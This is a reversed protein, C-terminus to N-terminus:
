STRTAIIMFWPNKSYSTGASSSRFEAKVTISGSLGSWTGAVIGMTNQSVYYAPNIASGGDTGNITMRHAVSGTASHQLQQGSVGTVTWTGTPLSYTRSMAQQYNSTSTTSGVDSASQADSKAWPTNLYGSADIRGNFRANGNSSDLAWNSTAGSFGHVFRDDAYLNSAVRLITGVTMDGDFQANGTQGFINWTDAGSTNRGQLNMGQLFFYYEASADGYVSIIERAGAGVDRTMSLKNGAALRVTTAGTNLVGDITISGGVDLNGGVDLSGSATVNGGLAYTRPSASGQIKGLIIPKGGVMACIVNDGVQLDFGELRAYREQLATGDITTITVTNGVISAVTARFCSKQEVSNDIIEQIGKYFEAARSM